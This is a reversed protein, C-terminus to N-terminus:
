MNKILKDAQVLTSKKNGRLLRYTEDYIFWGGSKIETPGEIMPYNGIPIEKEVTFVWCKTQYTVDDLALYSEIIPITSVCKLSASAIMTEEFFERIATAKQQEYKLPKGKPWLWETETYCPEYDIFNDYLQKHCDVFKKYGYDKDNDLVVEDYLKTFKDYTVDQLLNKITVTEELSLGAKLESIKSHNYYGRILEVFEPSYSRQVLCWRETDKAYVISGYSIRPKKSNRPVIYRRPLDSYLKNM